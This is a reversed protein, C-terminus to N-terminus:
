LNTDSVRKLFKMCSRARDNWAHCVGTGAPKGFFNLYKCSGCFRLFNLDWLL